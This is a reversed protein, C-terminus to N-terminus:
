IINQHHQVAREVFETAAVGTATVKGSGAHTVIDEERSTESSEKLVRYLKLAEHKGKGPMPKAKANKLIREVHIKGADFKYAKNKIMLDHKTVWEYKDNITNTLKTEHTETITIKDCTTDAVFEKLFSFM